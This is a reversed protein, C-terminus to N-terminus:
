AKMLQVLLQPGRAKYDGKGCPGNQLEWVLRVVYGVETDNEFYFISRTLNSHFINEGLFFSGYTTNVTRTSCSHLFISLKTRRKKQEERQEKSFM